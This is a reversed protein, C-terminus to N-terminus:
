ELEDIREMLEDVVDQLRSAEDFDDVDAAAQMADEAAQM